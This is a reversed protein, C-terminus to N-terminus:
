LMLSLLWTDIEHVNKSTYILGSCFSDATNVKAISVDIATTTAKVIPSSIVTITVVV